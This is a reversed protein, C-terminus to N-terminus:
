YELLVRYDSATGFVGAREDVRVCSRAKPGCRELKALMGAKAWEDRNARMEAVEAQVQRKEAQVALITGRDWWLVLTSALWGGLVLLAVTAAMWGLM